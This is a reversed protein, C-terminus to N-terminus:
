ENSRLMQLMNNGKQNLEFGRRLLIPREKGAIARGFIGTARMKLRVANLLVNMKEQKGAPPEISRLVQAVVVYRRHLRKIDEVNFASEKARGRLSEALQNTKAFLSRIEDIIKPVKAGYKQEDMKVPAAAKPDTLMVEVELTVKYINGDQKEDLIKYTRVFGKTNSLVEDRIEAFDKVETESKVMVGRAQEVAIRLGDSIAIKRAAAVDDKLTGMGDVKVSIADEGVDENSETQMPKKAYTGAAFVLILLCASLSVFRKM